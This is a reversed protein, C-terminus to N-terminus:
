FIIAGRRYGLDALMKMWIIKKISFRLSFIQEFDVIEDYGYIHTWQLLGIQIVKRRSPNGLSYSNQTRSRTLRSYCACNSSFLTCNASFVYIENWTFKLISVLFVRKAFIDCVKSLSM